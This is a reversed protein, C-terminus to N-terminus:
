APQHLSRYMALTATAVDAWRYTRARDLGAAVRQARGADDALCSLLAQAIAEPNKPDFYLACDGGLERLCRTESSVVPTGTALAELLPLGFGEYLSPFVFAAAGSLLGPLDDERVPGVWTVDSQIELERLIATDRRTPASDYGAIALRVGRLLPKAHAYGRLLGAVNKHPRNSGLYLLSPRPVGYRQWVAECVEPPQPTFRPHVGHPITEFKDAAHPFFRLSDTRTTESVAIARTCNRLARGACTRFLIRAQPTSEAPQMLPICDHMTLVTPLHELSAMLYYPSHYVDPKLEAAIDRLAAQQRPDFPSRSCVVSHTHADKPLGFTAEPPMVVTLRDAGDGERTADALALALEGVYRGIGPFHPTATRADLLINM